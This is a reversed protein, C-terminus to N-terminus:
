CEDGILSAFWVASVGGALLGCRHTIYAVLGACSVVQAVKWWRAVTAPALDFASQSEVKVILAFWVASVGGALFGYRHMMNGALGVLGAYSVVQAVKWLRAATAPPLDFASQSLAPISGVVRQRVAQQEEEPTGKLFTTVETACLASVLSLMILYIM